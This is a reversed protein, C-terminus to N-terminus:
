WRHPPSIGLEALVRAVQRGDRHRYRLSVGGAPDVSTEVAVGRRKLEAGARETAHPTDGWSYGTWLRGWRWRDVLVLTGLCLLAGIVPWVVVPSGALVGIAYGTAAGVLCFAAVAARGAPNLRATRFLRYRRLRRGGWSSPRYEAYRHRM